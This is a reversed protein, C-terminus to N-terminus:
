RITPAEEPLWNMSQGPERIEGDVRTEGSLPEIEVTYGDEPDDEDVIRILTYDATGNSYVYSYAIRHEGEEPAEGSPSVPEPYQPTYVWAFVCNAPLAGAADMGPVQLDSFRGMVEGEDEAAVEEKSKFRDKKKEQEQQWAEMEEATGFVLADPDGVEVKWTQADLDFAVRFTVNRLMAESLLFRYMRSMELAASRQQVDFVGALSPVAVAAVIGIISLVVIIEVLTM